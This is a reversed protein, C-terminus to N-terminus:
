LLVGHKLYYVAVFLSNLVVFLGLFLANYRSLYGTERGLIMKLPFAAMGFFTGLFLSGWVLYGVFHYEQQLMCFPCKHTPLAYIYTGFFDVVAHYAFFLFAANAVLSILSYRAVSLVLILVFLLYFIQLLSGTQLGLPLADAGGSIGFIVSCCQVPTLTSINAFYLFDLLTELVVFGFIALYLRLKVKFFPYDTAQLDTRNVLLWLGSLFLVGIKLKLLVSGYANANIVGAGCMAGPIIVALKDVAYAFFPLLALKATLLFLIILVVLYARKELRYQASSVQQFDWGRLIELASVFAVLGSIALVLELLLFVVVEKALLIM